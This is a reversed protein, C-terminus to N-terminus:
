QEPDPSVAIVFYSPKHFGESAAPSSSDLFMNKVSGDWLDKIKKM